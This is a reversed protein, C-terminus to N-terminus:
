RILNPRGYADTARDTPKGAQDIYKLQAPQAPTQPKVPTQQAPQKQQAPLKFYPAGELKASNMYEPDENQLAYFAAADSAKGAPMNKSKKYAELAARTQTGLKGDAGVGLMKQFVQQIPGEFAQQASQTAWQTGNFTAIPKGNSGQLVEGKQPERFDSDDPGKVLIKSKNKLSEEITNFGDDAGDANRGDGEVLGKAASAQGPTAPAAANEAPQKPLTVFKGNQLTVRTTDGPQTRAGDIIESEEPAVWKGGHFVKIDNPNKQVADLLNKTDPSGDDWSSEDPPNQWNQGGTLWGNNAEIPAADEAKRIFLNGFKLLDNISISNTIQIDPHNVVEM